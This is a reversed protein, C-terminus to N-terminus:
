NISDSKCTSYWLNIILIATPAQGHKPNKLPSKWKQNIIKYEMQNRTEKDPSIWTCRQRPHHGSLTNASILNNSQCFEVLYTVSENQDSFGFKGSKPKPHLNSQM